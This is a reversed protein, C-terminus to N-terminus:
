RRPPRELQPMSPDMLGEPRTEVLLEAEAGVLREGDAIALGDPAQPRADSGSARRARRPSRLSPPAQSAAADGAGVDPAVAGHAGDDAAILVAILAVRGLRQTM